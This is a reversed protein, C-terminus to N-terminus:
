NLIIKKTSFQNQQGLQIFYLGRSLNSVDLSVSPATMKRSQVVTGQITYLTLQTETQVNEEGLSVTIFGNAPNPAVTFDLAKVIDPIDSVVQSCTGYEYATLTQLSPENLTDRLLLTDNQYAMRNFSTTSWTKSTNSYSEQIKELCKNAANYTTYRIQSKTSDKTITNTSWNKLTKKEFFEEADLINNKYTYSTTGVITDTGNVVYTKKDLKDNIYSYSESRFLSFKTTGSLDSFVVTSVFRDAADYVTSVSDTTKGNQKFVNVRERGKNDYVIFYNAGKLTDNGFGSKRIAYNEKVDWKNTTANFSEYYFTDSKVNAATYIYRARESRPAASQVLTDTATIGKEFYKYSLLKELLRNQSDYKKKTVAVAKYLKTPYYSDYFANIVTDRCIKNDYDSLEQSKITFPSNDTSRTFVRKAKLVTTQSHATTMGAVTLLILLFNRM